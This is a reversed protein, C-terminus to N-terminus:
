KLYYPKKIVSDRGVMAEINKAFTKMADEPQMGSVVADVMAQVEVSILPYEETAPRYFGYPLFTTSKENVGIKSNEPDKAVDMRTSIYGSQNYIQKLSDFSTLLKIIEWSKEKKESNASISFGWGGQFTVIPRQPNGYETPMAAYGYVDRWNDIGSSAFLRPVWSGDFRIGVVGDIIYPEIYGRVGSTLLVDNPLVLDEERLTKIFNLTDMIGKSEVIWKGDEFLKDDTGYLLMLFTQMTTSEGMVRSLHAMIPLVEKGDFTGLNKIKRAADLIEDWNKPQWNEPNMGIAKILAKSYWIGRADTNWPITYVKGNITSAEKGGQYFEKWDEWNDVDLPALLGAAVDSQLIYSDQQVIDYSSDNRLTLAVKTFYEGEPAQIPTLKLTTGPMHEAVLDQMLDYYAEVGPTKGGQTTPDSRFLMTIENENIEKEGSCSVSLVLFLILIINKM